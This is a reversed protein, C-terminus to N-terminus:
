LANVLQRFAEGREAFDTYADFSTGGPSLLVVDGPEARRAAASVAEALSDVRLVDPRGALKASLPGALEGFLVVAKAREGVRRAWEDWVMEKDRGGALLIVPEDFAEIAALAREPATAISDNVYQAGGVVRVIELRHPVGAFSRIAEVMAEDEVGAADALAVAALVNLVNHAGRLRIDSVGALQRVRGDADRICIRGAQTYVGDPVEQHRSFHRLRGPVLDQFRLAGPDDASLVAIGSVDQHRLINSKARAYATMTKHRDLHNPTLNLIAAIPPSIDDWIEL